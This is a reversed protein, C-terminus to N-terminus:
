LDNLWAMDDDKIDQGNSSDKMFMNITDLYEKFPLHQKSNYGCLSYFYYENSKDIDTWFLKDDKTKKYEETKETIEDLTNKIDDKKEDDVWTDKSPLAKSIPM